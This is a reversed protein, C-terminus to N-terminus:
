TLEPKRHRNLDSLPEYGAFLLAAFLIYYSGTVTTYLFSNVLMSVMFSLLFGQALWRYDGLASVMRWQRYFFYLFLLLGVVGFETTALWYDSHPTNLRDGWGKIKKPDIEYNYRFSGAGWGLLPREKILRWSFKAFDYRFGWSTNNDGRQYKDISLLSRQATEYFTPSIWTIAGLLLVVGLGGLLLGKRGFLQYCFLATLILYVAYGTRGDNVFFEQATFLVVLLINLWRWDRSQKARLACIYAAIAVFFGTEIHSHFVWCASNPEKGYHSLGFAKLFSISITVIMAFVFANLCRRRWTEDRLLLIIFPLYILKGYKHVASLRYSWPAASWLTAVCVMAFFLLGYIILPHRKLYDFKESWDGSLVAFLAALSMFVDTGTISVPVSLATLFLCVQGAVRLKAKYGRTPLAITETM